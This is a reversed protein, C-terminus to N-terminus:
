ALLARSIVSKVNILNHIRTIAKLALQNVNILRITSIYIERVPYVNMSKQEQVHLAHLIVTKVFIFNIMQMSILIALNLVLVM